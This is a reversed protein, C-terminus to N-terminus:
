SQGRSLCDRKWVVMEWFWLTTELPRSSCLSNWKFFMLM